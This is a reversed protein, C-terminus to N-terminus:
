PTSSIESGPRSVQPDTSSSFGSSPRSTTETPSPPGERLARWGIRGIAVAFGVSIVALVYHVAKFGAGDSLRAIIWIRTAWVYFTWVAAAILVWAQRKTM